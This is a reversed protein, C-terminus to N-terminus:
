NFQATDCLGYGALSEICALPIRKLYGSNRCGYHRSGLGGVTVKDICVAIRGNHNRYFLPQVAPSCYVVEIGEPSYGGVIGTFEATCDPVVITCFQHPRVIRIQSYATCLHFSGSRPIELKHEAIRHVTGIGHHCHHVRAPFHKPAPM